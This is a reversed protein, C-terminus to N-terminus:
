GQFGLYNVAYLVQQAFTHQAPRWRPNVCLSGDEKWNSGVTPRIYIQPQQAPYGDAAVQITVEYINGSSGRLAGAFGALRGRVFPAFTPFALLMKGREFKWRVNTM